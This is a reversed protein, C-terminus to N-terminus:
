PLSLSPMNGYPQLQDYQRVDCAMGSVKEPGFQQSFKAMCADVDAQKRGTIIVNCGRLLFNEALGQGIGRTSGTIIVTKM